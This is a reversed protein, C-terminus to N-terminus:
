SGGGGTREASISIESEIAATGDTRIIVGGYLQEDSDVKIPSPDTDADTITVVGDGGINVETEPDSPDVSSLVFKIDTDGADAIEVSVEIEAETNNGIVFAEENFTDPEDFDVSGFRGVTGTANTNLGLKGSDFELLDREDDTTSVVTSDVGSPELSLLSESDPTVQLAFDRDAGTRTFAGTGFILGTAAAVGAAMRTLLTRRDTM